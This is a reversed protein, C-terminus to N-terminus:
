VAMAKHLTVDAEHLRPPTTAGLQLLMSLRWELPARSPPAEFPLPPRLLGTRPGCLSLIGRRCVM